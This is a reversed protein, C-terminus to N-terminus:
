PQGHKIQLVPPFYRLAKLLPIDKITSMEHFIGFLNKMEDENMATTLKLIIDRKLILLGNKVEYEEDVKIIKAPKYLEDEDNKKDTEEEDEFDM